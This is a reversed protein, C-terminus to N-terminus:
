WTYTRSKQLVQLFRNHFLRSQVKLFADPLSIPRTQDSMRIFDKRAGSDIWIIKCQMLYM